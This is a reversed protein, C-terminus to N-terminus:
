NDKGSYDLEWDANVPEYGFDIPAPESPSAALLVKRYNEFCDFGDPRILFVVYHTSRPPSSRRGTTPAPSPASRRAQPQLVGKDGRCEVFTPKQAGIRQTGFLATASFRREEEAKQAPRRHTGAFAAPARRRGESAGQRPRRPEDEAARGQERLRPLQDTRAKAQAIAERQRANQADWVSKKKEQEAAQQKM